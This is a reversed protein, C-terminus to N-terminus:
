FFGDLLAAVREPAEVLLGHRLGGLIELRSGAIRSHMLRAMRPTGAADHEGTAVLTPVRIEGLRDAFDTTCFVIFSQLYSEADCALLQQVRAEVLDAHDRRFADTFWRERNSEAIAALGNRRLFEVRELARGQEEASRGAVASVIALKAVRQPSALALSQVVSGGLSFGAVCARGVGLADMVDTVDRAFDAATVPGRIVGSAGHGRLDPRIVRFRALRRAVGDWSTSDAGVGHVLVVPEGAGEDRYAIPPMGGQRALVKM